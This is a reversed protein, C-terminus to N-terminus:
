QREGRRGRKEFVVAIPGTRTLIQSCTSLLEKQLLPSVTEKGLIVITLKPHSGEDTSFNFTASSLNSSPSTFTVNSESIAPVLSRRCFCRWGMVATHYFRPLITSVHDRNVLIGAKKYQVPVSRFSAATPLDRHKEGILPRFRVHMHHDFKLCLTLTVLCNTVQSCIWSWLGILM